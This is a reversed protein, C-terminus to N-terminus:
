EHSSRTAEEIIHSIGLRYNKASYAEQVFDAGERGLKRQLDTSAVLLSIAQIWQEATTALLVGPVASGSHPEEEAGDDFTAMLGQVGFDTSIVALGRALYDLTKRKMGAGFRLPSIGIGSGAMISAVQAEPLQGVVNVGAEILGRAEAAGWQGIVTLTLSPHARQAAPLIERVFWTVGDLNPAHASSGIFVLNTGREQATLRSSATARPPTDMNFYRMGMVRSEPFLARAIEVEEGTPLVTLTAQSFCYREITKMVGVAMSKEGLFNNQLSLRQFHLDHALYLVPTNLHKVLPFLRLFLAPRSIVILDPRFSILEVLMEAEAEIFLSIVHGLDAACELFDSDARAGADHEPTLPGAGCLAIRV